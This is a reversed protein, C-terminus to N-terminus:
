KSGNTSFILTNESFLNEFHLVFGSFGASANTQVYPISAILNTNDKLGYAAMLMYSQTSVTGLNQNDRFLNNEWYQNWSTNSYIVAACIDKKAMYVHDNPMQAIIQNGLGVFLFLFFCLKKM